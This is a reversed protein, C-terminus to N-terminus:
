LQILGHGCSLPDSGPIQSRDKYRLREKIKTADLDPEKSLLLAVVGSVFASAMSTGSDVVHLRDVVDKTDFSADRSRASVIMVGPAVLDPKALGDRRPGRSSTLVVTGLDLDEIGRRHGGSDNWYKKTTYAGATIASTSCGPSSVTMDGRAHPEKFKIGKEGWMDVRVGKKGAPNKLHLTFERESAGHGEPALLFIFIEHDHNVPDAGPTSVRAKWGGSFGYSLYPAKNEGQPLIKQFNRGEEGRESLCVELREKGSYWGTLFIRNGASPSASFHVKTIKPGEVVAEARIDDLAENGAACCVVRGPGSAKDIAVCMPSTGDHPDMHTGLSINVVAPRNMEEAVDFIYRMGDIVHASLNNYDVKVVVLDAEPAVGKYLSESGSAIGSVHTGHGNTDKIEGFEPKVFEAGYDYKGPKRRRDDYSFGGGHPVTQDWVRLIRESFAPHDPDIGSDIVGIIVGKGGLGTRKTFQPVGVVPAAADMHRGLPRAVSVRLVGPHETLRHLRGVEAIGTRVNGFDTNIEIGDDLVESLDTEERCELTFVVRTRVDPDPSSFLSEVDAFGSHSFSDEHGKKRHEEIIAATEPSLKSFDM